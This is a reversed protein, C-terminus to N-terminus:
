QLLGAIIPQGVSAMLGHGTNNPHINDANFYTTNAAAGAAGIEAVAAYDAIGDATLTRIMANYAATTAALRGTRDPITGVVVLAGM